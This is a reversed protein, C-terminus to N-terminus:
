NRIKLKRLGHHHFTFVEGTCNSSSGVYGPSNFWYTPDYLIQYHSRPSAFKLRSDVMEVFNFVFVVKTVNRHTLYNM